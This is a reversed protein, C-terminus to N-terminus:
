SGFRSIWLHDPNTKEALSLHVSTMIASIQHYMARFTAHHAQSHQALLGRHCLSHLRPDRTSRYIKAAKRPLRYCESDPYLKIRESGIVAIIVIALAAAILICACLTIRTTFDDIGLGSAPGM